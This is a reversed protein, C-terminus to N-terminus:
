SFVTEFFLQYDSFMVMRDCLDRERAVAMSKSERDNAVRIHGREM